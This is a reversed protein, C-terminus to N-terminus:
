KARSLDLEIPEVLSAYSFFAALAKTSTMFLCLEVKLCCTRSPATEQAPLHVFTLVIQGVYVYEDTVLKMLLMEVTEVSTMVQISHAMLLAECIMVSEVLFRYTTKIDSPIALLITDEYLQPPVVPKQLLGVGGAQTVLNLEVTPRCQGLASEAAM